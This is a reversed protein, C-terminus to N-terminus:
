SVMFHLHERVTIGELIVDSQPLFGSIQAMKKRNLTEGNFEIKGSIEDRLRLSLAALLSTKGCGSFIFHLLQM